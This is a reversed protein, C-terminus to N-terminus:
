IALVTLGDIDLRRRKYTRRSGGGGISLAYCKGWDGFYARCACLENSIGAVRRLYTGSGQNTRLAIKILTPSVALREVFDWRNTRSTMVHLLTAIADSVGGGVQHTGGPVSELAFPFAYLINRGRRRSYAVRVHGEVTSLGADLVYLGWRSAGSAILHSAFTAYPRDIHPWSRARLPEM